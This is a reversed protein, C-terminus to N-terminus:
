LADFETAVMAALRRAAADDFLTPRYTLAFRLHTDSTAAGIGLAAPMAPPACCARTVDFGPGVWTRPVWGVNSLVATDAQQRGFGTAATVVGRRAAGPPVAAMVELIPGPGRRRLEATTAAVSAVCREFTSRDVARTSVSEAVAVNAVVEDRWEEPRANVAVLVSLRDAPCGHELNWRGLGRHLAALVVDNVTARARRRTTSGVIPDLPVTVSAVRYGSGARGGDPAVLAAARPVRSLRQWEVSAARLRQAPTPRRVAGTLAHVAQVDLDPAIDPLGAYARGVSRLLRQLGVGDSAAHHVALIVVDGDPHRVLRARLPPSAALSIPASLVAGRVADVDVDDVADVVELPDRDAVADICWEHGGDAALEAALRARAMPHRDLATSVAARLREADLRGAVQVEVAGISPAGPTDLHLFTEDILNFPIRTV